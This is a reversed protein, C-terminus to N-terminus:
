QGGSRTGNRRAAQQKRLKHFQKAVASVAPDMLGIGSSSSTKAAAVPETNRMSSAAVVEDTSENLESLENLQQRLDEIEARAQDLEATIAVDTAQQKGQQKREEDFESQQSALSEARTALEDHWQQLQQEYAELAALSEAMHTTYEEQDQLLTEMCYQIVEDPKAM